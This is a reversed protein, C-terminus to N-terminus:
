GGGRRAARRSEFSAAEGSVPPSAQRRARRCTAAAASADGREAAAVCADPGAVPDSPDLSLARARVEGRSVRRRSAAVRARSDVRDDSARRTGGRRRRRPARPAGNGTRRSADRTEEWRAAGLRAAVDPPASEAFDVDSDPTAAADSNAAALEARAELARRARGAAGDGGARLM